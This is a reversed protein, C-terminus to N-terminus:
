NPTLPALQAVWWTTNRLASSDEAAQNAEEAGAFPAADPGEGHLTIGDFPNGAAIVYGPGAGPARYGEVHGGLAVLAAEVQSKAANFADVSPEDPSLTELERLCRDVADRAAAISQSSRQNHSPIMNTM